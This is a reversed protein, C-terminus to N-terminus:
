RAGIKEQIGTVKDWWRAPTMRFPELLKLLRKSPSSTSYAGSAWSPTKSWGMAEVIQMAEPYTTAITESKGPAGVHWVHAIILNRVRAYKSHLGFATDSSAKMQIPCAAFTEVRAALDAYAILDIGRDRLPLAVELRALLLEEILRNRGLLEVVQSDRQIPM